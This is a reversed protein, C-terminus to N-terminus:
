VRKWFKVFSTMRQQGDIISYTGDKEECLYITPIPIGILASEILKSAKNWWLCLRKSLWTTSYYRWWWVHGKNNIFSFRKETLVRISNNTLDGEM